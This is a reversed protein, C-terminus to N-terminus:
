SSGSRRGAAFRNELLVTSQVSSNSICRCANKRRWAQRLAEAAGVHVAGGRRWAHWQAHVECAGQCLTCCCPITRSFPNRRGSVGTAPSGTCTTARSLASTATPTPAGSTRSRETPPSRCEPANTTKNKYTLLAGQFCSDTSHWPAWVQVSCQLRCKGHTFSSTMQLHHHTQSSSRSCLSIYPRGYSRTGIHEHLCLKSLLAGDLEEHHAMCADETIMCCIIIAAIMCPLGTNGLEQKDKCSGTLARTTGVSICRACHEHSLIIAIM